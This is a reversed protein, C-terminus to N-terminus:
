VYKDIIEQLQEKRRLGIIKEVEKGGKFMILTPISSIGYRGAIDGAEDVNLKCIVAKGENEQSLAEVTPLLMRCPGCWEAWFDVLVPKDANNITEDFNKQTLIKAM